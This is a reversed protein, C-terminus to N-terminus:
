LQYNMVLYGIGFPGEYSMLDAACHHEAMIGLYIMLTNLENAGAQEIKKVELNKIGEYDCTTLYEIIKKDFNKAIPSYGVPSKKNLKHSLEVSAIVAIRSKEMQIHDALEEGLEFHKDFSLKSGSIPIIKATKNKKCLFHLPILSGHDLNKITTLQIPMKVELREKIRYSLANDGYYEEKTAFDGFEDLKGIFKPSFNILFANDHTNGHPTLVIVTDPAAAYFHEALSNLASITQNVKKTNDKGIQEILIPSHPVIASFVLM